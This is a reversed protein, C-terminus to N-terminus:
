FLSPDTSRSGYFHSEQESNNERSIGDFVQIPIPTLLLPKLVENKIVPWNEDWTLEEQVAIFHVRRRITYDSPNKICEIRCGPVIYIRRNLTQTIAPKNYRTFQQLYADLADESHYFILIDFIM